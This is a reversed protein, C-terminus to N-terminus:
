ESAAGAWAGRAHEEAKANAMSPEIAKLMMSLAREYRAACREETRRIAEAVVDAMQLATERDVM